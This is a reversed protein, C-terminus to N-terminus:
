DVPAKENVLVSDITKGLRVEDVYTIQTPMPGGNRSVFARYIGYQFYYDKPHFQIFNEIAAERQYVPLGSYQAGLQLLDPISAQRKGNLYVELLQHGGSTDFRILIDTWRGRLADVSGLPLDKTDDRVDTASGTLFHVTATFRNGRLNMQLVPPDVIRNESRNTPGGNQHLIAITTDVRASTKFDDPLFLSFGVWQETGYRWSKKITYFARERDYQCDSQACDGARVEFRQAKKGARIPSPAGVSTVGYRTTTMSKEGALREAQAAPTTLVLALLCGLVYKM